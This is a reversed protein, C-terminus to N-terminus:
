GHTEDGSHELMDKFEDVPMGRQQAGVDQVSLNFIGAFKALYYINGGLQVLRLVDRARIAERQEPSLGYKACYADEDRKFADRNEASNFSMCMRNLPYGMVSRRGNFVYTGPVKDYDHTSWAVASGGSQFLATPRPALDSGSFQAQISHLRPHRVGLHAYDEAPAM